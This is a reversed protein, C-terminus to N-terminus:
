CTKWFAIKLNNFSYKILNMTITIINQLLPMLLEMYRHFVMTNLSKVVNYTPYEKDFDLTKFKLTTDPYTEPSYYEPNLQNLLYNEVIKNRTQPLNNLPKALTFATAVIFVASIIIFNKKM